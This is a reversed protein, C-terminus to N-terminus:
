EDDLTPTRNQTPPRTSSAGPPAVIDPQKPEQRQLVAPHSEPREALLREAFDLGEQTQSLQRRLDSVEGELLELRPNRESGGPRQRLRQAWLGFALSLVAHVSAHLPEAAGAAFGVALLNAVSLVVAIPYWLAPKFTM